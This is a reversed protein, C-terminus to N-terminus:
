AGPPQREAESGAVYGLCSTDCTNRTQHVTRKATRAIFRFVEDKDALPHLGAGCNGIIIELRRLLGGITYECDCAELGCRANMPIPNPM